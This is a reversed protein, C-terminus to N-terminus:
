EHNLPPRHFALNVLEGPRLGTNAPIVMRVPLGWEPTKQDRLQRPPVVEVQAGVTDVKAKVVRTPDTRPRVDVDMGPAPRIYNQGERLFSVVYGAEAAAVEMIAEGPKVMQGPRLHLKVVTGSIPSRIDLSDLMLDLQALEEERNDLAQRVSEIRASSAADAAPQTTAPGSQGAGRAAAGQAARAAAQLTELEGRLRDVEVQRAARRAQITKPDLTAIVDGEKVDDFLKIARGPLPGLVGDMNATVPIRQVEVEGVANGTGTQRHWLWVSMVTCAAVTIFPFLQHRFRVWRVRLPTPIPEKPSTKTDNSAM